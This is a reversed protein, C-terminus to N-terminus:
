VGVAGYLEVPFDNTSINQGFVRWIGCFKRGLKDAWAWFNQIEIFFPNMPRGTTGTQLWKKNTMISKCKNTADRSDGSTSGGCIVVKDKLMGGMAVRLRLPYNQISPCLKPQGDNNLVEVQKALMSPIVEIAQKM